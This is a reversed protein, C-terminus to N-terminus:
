ASNCSSIAKKYIELTNNVFSETSFVKELKERGNKGLRTIENPNDLLFELKQSLSKFDNPEILFGNEGDDIIEPIGGVNTGIVPKSERMAELFILGFSEYVSPAVFISCKSYLERLKSEEVYDLFEFSKQFKSSILSKLYSKYTKKGNYPTDSGVLRFKIEPFKELVMNAAKVLTDVGKRVELRGVFLIFKEVDDSPYIDTDIGLPDIFWNQNSIDYQNMLTKKINKSISIIADAKELYNRELEMSILLDDNFNWHNIEAVKFIPTEVRVVLPAIKKISLTLGEIDWLPAEIIDVGYLDSIEKVKKFVQISHHINKNVIPYNSTTKLTNNESNIQHIFINEANSQIKEKTVIHVIHGKSALKTALINSYRGIGGIKGPPYEQTVLCIRLADKRKVTDIIQLNSTDPIWNTKQNVNKYELLGKFFGRLTKFTIKLMLSTSLRKDRWAAYFEMLRFYLPFYLIKIKDHRNSSSYFHTMSFYITSKMIEFWNLDWQGKRNIGESMKHVVIADNAHIIKFNEKIIRVCLESEDLYFKYAPNFGGLKVLLDRRFSTNAGQIYNYWVGDPHNYEEHSYDLYAKVEAFKNVAGNKFQIDTLNPSFVLGGIAGITDDTYCRHLNSLWDPYANADDDLFAIFNGKAVAIGLNRAFSLGKGEKQLVIKIKPFQKLIAISKKDHYPVVVILEYSKFKQDFVSKISEILDQHREYTCIIISFEPTLM